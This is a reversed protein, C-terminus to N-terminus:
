TILTHVAFPNVHVSSIAKFAANVDWIISYLSKEPWKQILSKSNKEECPLWCFLVVAGEKKLSARNPPSPLDSYDVIRSLNQFYDSDWNQLCFIDM